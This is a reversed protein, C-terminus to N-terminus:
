IHPYRHHDEGPYPFGQRYHIHGHESCYGGYLLYVDNGPLLTFSGNWTPLTVKATQTSPKPPLTVYRPVPGEIEDQAVASAAFCCALAAVSVILKRM